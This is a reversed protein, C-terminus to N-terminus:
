AKNSFSYKCHRASFLRLIFICFYFQKVRLSSARILMRMKWDFVISIVFDLKNHVSHMCRLCTRQLEAFFATASSMNTWRVVLNHPSSESASCQELLGPLELLDTRKCM